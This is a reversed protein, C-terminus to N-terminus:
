NHLWVCWVCHVSVHGENMKEVERKKGEREKIEKIRWKWGRSGNCSVGVAWVCKTSICISMVCLAVTIIKLYLKDSSHMVGHLACLYVTVCVRRVSFGKM